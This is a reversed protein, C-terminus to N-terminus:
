QTAGPSFRAAAALIAQYKPATAPSQQVFELAGWSGYKSWASVSEFALFLGGGAGYWLEFYRAYLEGMRPHRNVAQFLRTVAPEYAPLMQASVLHQGGEYAVLQVGYTLAIRANAEIFGRVTGEIQQSLADLVEAETMAAQSAGTGSGLSGGFYPAIALADARRFGDRWGLVQEAIWGNAAQSALVRVVRASDAGFVSRWIAFMEVARQSYYRLGAQNPDASLGLAQGRERVHAAQPFINNWVENSYEVYVKRRPDLQARALTAFQRVYDDSALHPMCFWPDAGIANALAIMTEVPVGGAVAYTAAGARARNAWEGPPTHNMRQWNMFRLVGFPRVVQLFEAGFPQALHTAENGPRLFRINRVPNAPDTRRLNMFVTRNGVEPVRVVMRGPSQSVVTVNQNIEIRIEGEGDYLLVYDGPPQHGTEDNLVITTAYQGSELSAVWYDQTLALTGGQGWAAGTRQPIWFRSTHFVNAFPWETTWDNVPSLNMGMRAAAVPGSGDTVVVRASDRVGGASAVIWTTDERFGARPRIAQVLGGSVTAVAPVRSVWSVAVGTVEAGAADRAAATLRVTDNPALRAGTPSVVISAPADVTGAPRVPEDCSAAFLLLVLGGHRMRRM